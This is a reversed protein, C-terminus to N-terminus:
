GPVDFAMVTLILERNPDDPQHFIYRFEIEGRRELERKYCKHSEATSPIKELVNSFNKKRNFLLIATKTDRWSTYGLLQDIAELLGKEGIWFKCEAIFANKGEYRILIDTKGEYNFTEGTAMGEYQANLQVLFHQRLDEEKMNVFASPSREMVLVMNKLINLINEYEEIDLVPEPKSPKETPEPKVIRPKRRIEPVVYTKPMGERKKIPIGLKTVLDLDKQLKAKRNRIVDRIFPEISKNFNDVDRRVWGLYKKINNIDASITKNLEDADHETRTYMLHIEQGVVDGHPPGYTFTSPTYYFFNPDGDFPVAVTISIGKIYFPRSRDLIGRMPDKSVDVDAEEESIVYKDEDHLVPAQRFYKGILYKVLEEENVNLLKKEYDEIERKISRQQGEFYHRLEGEAHFLLEQM